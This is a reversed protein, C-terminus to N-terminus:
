QADRDIIEQVGKLVHRMNSSSVRDIPVGVNKLANHIKPWEHKEIEPFVDLPYARCWNKIQHLNDNARDLQARLSTNDAILASLRAGKVHESREAKEARETLRDLQSDMLRMAADSRDQATYLEGKAEALKAELARIESTLAKDGETFEPTGEWCESLIVSQWRESLKESM